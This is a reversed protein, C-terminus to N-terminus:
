LHPLEWMPPNVRVGSRSARACVCVRVCSCVRACARVCVCVCVCVFVRVCVQALVARMAAASSELLKGVVPLSLMAAGVKSLAEVTPLIVKSVSAHLLPM